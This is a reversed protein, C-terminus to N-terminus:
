LRAITEELPPNTHKPKTDQRNPLYHGLIKVESIKKIEVQVVCAERNAALFNM